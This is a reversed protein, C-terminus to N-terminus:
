RAAAAIESRWRHASGATPLHVALSHCCTSTLALAHTRTEHAQGRQLRSHAPAAAGGVAGAAGSAHARALQGAPAHLVRQPSSGVDRRLSRGRSVPSATGLAHLKSAAPRRIINPDLFPHFSRHCPSRSRPTPLAGTHARAHRKKKAAGEGRRQFLGQGPSSSGGRAHSASGPLNCCSARHGRLLLRLLGPSGALSFFVCSLVFVM